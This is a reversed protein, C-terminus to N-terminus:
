WWFTCRIRLTITCPPPIVLVRPDSVSVIPSLLPGCIRDLKTTAVSVIGYMYLRVGVIADIRGEERAHHM